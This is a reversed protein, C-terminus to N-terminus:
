WLKNHFLSVRIVFGELSGKLIKGAVFQRGANPHVLIGHLIGIAVDILLTGAVHMPADGILHRADFLLVGVGERRLLHEVEQIMEAVDNRGTRRHRTDPIVKLNCGEGVAEHHSEVAIGVGVSGDDADILFLHLQHLAATTHSVVERM